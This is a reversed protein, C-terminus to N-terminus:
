ARSTSRAKCVATRTGSRAVCTVKPGHLLAAFGGGSGRADHRAVGKEARRGARVDKAAECATMGVIKERRVKEGDGIVKRKVLYNPSDICSSQIRAGGAVSAPFNLFHPSYFPLSFSLWSSSTLRKRFDSLFRRPHLSAGGFNKRARESREGADCSEMGGCEMSHGSDDVRKTACAAGSTAIVWGKGENQAAQRGPMRCAKGLVARDARL